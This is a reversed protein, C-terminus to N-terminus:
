DAATDVQTRSTFLPTPDATKSYANVPGRRPSCPNEDLHEMSDICREAHDVSTFKYINKDSEGINNKVFVSM